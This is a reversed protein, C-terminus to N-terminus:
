LTIRGGTAPIVAGSIYSAATSALFIFIPAIEAPQGPRGMPTNKGFDELDSITSPILPTWITGPAVANVRIGKGQELLMKSLSATLNQLAAKTSAYALLGPNPEYVNVSTTNIISGGKPMYDLSYKLLYFLPHVNTDFTKKWEEVSIDKLFDHEMQFAANHILVDIKNFQEITKEIIKKCYKPDSLDGQFLVCKRGAEKIWAQTDLADVDESSSLYCIVIDAGERAFAIAAAKGIGSDGGTIFIVKDKFKGSGKYSYEGHDPYNRMEMELGPPTQRKENRPNSLKENNKANKKDM